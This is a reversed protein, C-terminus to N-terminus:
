FATKGTKKIEEEKKKAEIRERQLLNEMSPIYYIATHYEPNGFRDDKISIILASRNKTWYLSRGKEM